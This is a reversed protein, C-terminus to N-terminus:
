HIAKRAGVQIQQDIPLAATPKERRNRGVSKKAFTPCGDLELGSKSHSLFCRSQDCRKRWTEPHLLDRRSRTYEHM